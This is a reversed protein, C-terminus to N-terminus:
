WPGLPEKPVNVKRNSDVWAKSGFRLPLAHKEIKAYEPKRTFRLLGTDGVSVSSMEDNEMGGATQQAVDRAARLLPLVGPNQYSQGAVALRGQYARVLEDQLAQMRDRHGVLHQPICDRCLKATAQAHRTVDDPLDLHRAVADKAMKIAAEPTPLYEDPLGDWYHGGLMVTLKTGQVSDAGRNEPVPNAPTPLSFERDSDFIVGLVYEPNQFYDLAQPLLYGFGNHPFNAQPTPYWINVVMITVATSSALTPLCDGTIRSLVKGPITSIVKDYDSPVKNRKSAVQFRADTM